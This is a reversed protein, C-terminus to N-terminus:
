VSAAAPAGQVIAVGSSTGVRTAGADLLAKAKAYDKIGGAAKIGIEAGAGSIIGRILVVDEVTAGKGDKVFGTSTKVFHAGGKICAKVAAIKEEETLLDCEIIVKVVASAALAVKVVAKIEDVIAQMEGEKLLGINIVMDLEEAGCATARQAEAVKMDTFSAGLPFGVVTGVVVKSASLEKVALTVHCPNVCVAHFGHEVAEQCLTKVQARTADPSLLSHEIHKAVDINPM